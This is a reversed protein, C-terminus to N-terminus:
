LKTMIKKIKNNNNVESLIMEELFILYDQNKISMILDSKIEELNDFMEKEISEFRNAVYKFILNEENDTLKIIFVDQNDHENLITKLNINNMTIENNNLFQYANCNYIDNLDDISYLNNYSKNGNFTLHYAEHNFVNKTDITKMIDQYMMILNEYAYFMDSIKEILNITKPNSEIAFLTDIDKDDVFISVAVRDIYEKYFDININYSIRKDEINFVEFLISNTKKIIECELIDFLNNAIIERVNFENNYIKKFLNKKM